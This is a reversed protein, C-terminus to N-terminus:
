LNFNKKKLNFIVCNIIFFSYKNSVNVIYTHIIYLVQVNCLKLYNLACIILYPKSTM